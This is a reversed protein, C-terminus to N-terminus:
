RPVTRDATGTLALPTMQGAASFEVNKGYNLGMGDCDDLNPEQLLCLIEEKRM